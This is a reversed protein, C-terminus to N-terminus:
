QKEVAVVTALVRSMTVNYICQKDQKNNNIYIYSDVIYFHETDSHFRL